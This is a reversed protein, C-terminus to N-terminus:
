KEHAKFVTRDEGGFLPADMCEACYQKNYETITSCKQCCFAHVEVEDERVKHPLLSAKIRGFMFRSISENDM